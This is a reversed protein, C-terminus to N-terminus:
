APRGRKRVRKLRKRDPEAVQMAPLFDELELAVERLAKGTHRLIQGKSAPYKHIETVYKSGDNRHHEWRRHFGGALRHMVKAAQVLRYELKSEAQMDAAHALSVALWISLVQDADVERAALLAWVNRSREEPSRGRLRLASVPSGVAWMRTRVRDRCDSVVSLSANADLWQLAVARYPALQAATYSKKSYSGHRRFHEVHARCYHRNLGQGAEAM